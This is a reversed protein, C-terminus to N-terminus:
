VKCMRSKPCGQNYKEVAKM